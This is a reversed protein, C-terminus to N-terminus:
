ASPRLGRGYRQMTEVLLDHPLGYATHGDRGTTTAAAVLANVVAEETSEITAMFLADILHDDFMQVPSVPADAGDGTLTNGTAFCLFLEGSTQGGISGVRALGLGARQALRRCQHPLLPADTAVVVIISGSGPPPPRRGYRDGASQERGYASPVVEANIAEGVPVGDVRLWERFGFNTQVVAGVTYGGDREDIVRSATGIGGKFEFSIAGTGGGVAGEEVPGATASDLAAQVHEERVHFGDIDNLTGDFIEGVVPLFWWNESADDV